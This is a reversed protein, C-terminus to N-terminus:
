STLSIKVWSNSYRRCLVFLIAFWLPRQLHKIKLILLLQFGHQFYIFLSQKLTWRFIPKTYSYLSIVPITIGPITIEVSRKLPPLSRHRCPNAFVCGKRIEGKLIKNPLTTRKMVACPQYLSLLVTIKHWRMSSTQQECM